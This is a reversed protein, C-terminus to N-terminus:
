NNAPARTAAGLFTSLTSKGANEGPTKGGRFAATETVTKGPVHAGSRDAEERREAFVEAIKKRRAEGELSAVETVQQDDLHAMAQEAMDDLLAEFAEESMEAWRTTREDSFYTDPLETAAIEKVAAVRSEKRAEAEEKETISQKFEELATEANEKATLAEAKEAELVDIRNQLEAKETETAETASAVERRVAETLIAEHEAETFTRPTDSVEDEMATETTICVQCSAKDHAAAGAETLLLQDHAQRVSETIPMVRVM